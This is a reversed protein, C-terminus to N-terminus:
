FSINLGLNYVKSQPYFAGNESTNEPDVWKLKDVTFLNSGNVYIRMSKVVKVKSLLADPLTYSLELTKLRAYSSNRMWFTSHLGSPESETSVTPLIPYKSNMSGPTYRNKFIEAINNDSLRFDLIYYQWVKTAGAFNAWLSFNKYNLSLNLGFTVQPINSKDTRVQDSADITGSKDVDKYILDGVQAGPWHPTADLQAQTRFIGIAEYMLDAGLVHGKEKQWAPVNQPESLDLVKSKAFAINGDIKYTINNIRKTHSLRLEIGRNEVVGINEAPLILGTYLPVALDRTALINSRVQKFVDVELGLLGNWFNADLGINSTKAVEWTINPNPTVGAALGQTAAQTTGYTYGLSNLTYLRLNQFAAIADNGIQGYSARLKLDTIFSFRKKIFNEQSIRWAVSAGPFFGWQNGKPFNSSGDYRFNLDALYKDRFGYSVRGFFNERGSEFRTGDTVQNILSGAFLEDIASSLYNQRFASFSSTISESQEMAIFTSLHHDNFQREYKIRLNYLTNKGDILSQTLQPHLIGGGTIPIYIKNATDYNYVTFPTQWIKGETLDKTYAFYGDIGLGKVWPIALDFYTKLLTHEVKNNNNGWASTAEVAPNEGAEVGASPLGNAWYIPYFPVQRLGNFDDDAYNGNQYSNNLDIGVKLYKNIKADLNGLISYTKFNTVDKKFIGDQNSYSGSVSYKIDETGGRISLNHQSQLALKRLALKYWDYNPYNPDTGYKFKQIQDDTYRISQGQSVLLQNIYGALTAADALKPLRTPQSAGLNMNYSIIPKGTSGRKTTILIVGNAARAGYIAASADKLVSISEVDNPNIQQWGSVDQIGDVVVLPSNDGTTSLGRILITPNDNGPQGTTNKIIVGPLLGTLSNAINSAPSFQLDKGSISAVSGTLTARRETGYGVNVLVEGLQTSTRRMVINIETQHGITVEQTEFGIFSFVLIGTGEITFSGDLNTSTGRKTAKIIVSVGALPNGEPDKVTGKILNDPLPIDESYLNSVKLSNRALNHNEKQVVTMTEHQFIFDLPQGQLSERLVEEVTRDRVHISVLRTEELVRTHYLFVYGTQKNIEKFIDGLKVNNASLTVKQTLGGASATSCALFLFVAVLRMNLLAKKTFACGWYNAKLNM